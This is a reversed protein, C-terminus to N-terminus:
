KPAVGQYSKCNVLFEISRVGFWSFSEGNVLAAPFGLEQILKEHRAFPYPESSFLLLTSEPAYDKLDIKPYRTSFQPLEIGVTQCVDGIFTDRSVTMWPDRWILYLIHDIDGSWPKLVKLVPHNQETETSAGLWSLTQGKSCIAKSEELKLARTALKELNINKFHESLTQLDRALTSLSIVHTSVYPVSCQEVMERTNEEQDFIVLDPKLDQVKQWDAHKTGGVIPIDKVEAVPHICFRTRGVIEVGCALLTETLSPVFSVVRM